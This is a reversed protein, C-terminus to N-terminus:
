SLVIDLLAHDPELFGSKIKIDAQSLKQVMAPTHAAKAMYNLVGHYNPRKFDLKQWSMMRERLSANYLWPKVIDFIKAPLQGDGHKILWARTIHPILLAYKELTRAVYWMDGDNAHYLFAIADKDVAIGKEEMARSLAEVAKREDLVPFAFEKADVDKFVNKLSAPIGKKWAENFYIHATKSRAGADLLDRYISKKGTIEGIGSVILCSYNEGFLGSFMVAEKLAAYGEETSINVEQQRAINVADCVEKRHHHFSETRTFSDPGHFIYLM